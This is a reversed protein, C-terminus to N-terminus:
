SALIPPPNGAGVGSGEQEPSDQWPLADDPGARPAEPVEDKVPPLLRVGPDVANGGGVSALGLGRVRACFSVLARLLQLFSLLLAFRFDQSFSALLFYAGTFFFAFFFYYSLSNV